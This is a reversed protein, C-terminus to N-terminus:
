QIAKPEASRVENVVAVILDWSMYKRAARIAAALVEGIAREPQAM